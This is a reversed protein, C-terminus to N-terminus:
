KKSTALKKKTQKSIKKEAKPEKKEEVVVKKEVEKKSYSASLAELIRDLKISIEQLQANNQIVPAEKREFDPRRPGRDRSERPARSGGEKKEFCDSCYVPRGDRPEFPIECDKGCESCVAKFMERREGRDRFDRKVFDRRGFDRGSGLRDQQNFNRM